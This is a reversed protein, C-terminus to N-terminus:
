SIEATWDYVGTSSAVVFGSSSIDSATGSTLTVSPTGNMKTRFPVYVDGSFQGKQYYRECRSLNDGYPIYCSTVPHRFLGALERFNYLGFEFEGDTLLTISIGAPTNINPHIKISNVSEFYDLGYGSGKGPICIKPNDYIVNKSYSRSVNEIKFNGKIAKSIVASTLIVFDGNDKDSIMESYNLYEYDRDILKIEQNKKGYGKFTLNGSSYLQCECYDISLTNIKWCDCVYDNLNCQSLTSFTGRQDVQFSGNTSLNYRSMIETFGNIMKQSM